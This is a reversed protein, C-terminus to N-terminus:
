IDFEVCNKQCEEFLLEPLANKKLSDLNNYPNQSWSGASM